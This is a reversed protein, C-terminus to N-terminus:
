PGERLRGRREVLYNLARRSPVFLYAGARVRVFRALGVQRERALPTARTFTRPRDPALPDRANGLLPDREGSLGGFKPNNLWNQQVFEFGRGLSAGLAMFLIGRPVRDDSCPFPGALKPGYLRGRRLIRHRRVAGLSATAGDGLSDRPNARRAHAGIPCAFGRADSARYGFDNSGRRPDVPEQEPYLALPAGNPWRGIWSAAVRRAAADREIPSAFPAELEARAYAERWFAAVDQQLKRYALYSGNRGFDLLGDGAAPPLPRTVRHLLKAVRPTEGRGGREDRYGLVFEGARVRSGRRRSAGRVIPQSVDHVFGFHERHDEPL